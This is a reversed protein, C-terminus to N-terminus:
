GALTTMAQEARTLVADAVWLPVADTSARTVEHAGEHLQTVQWWGRLLHAASWYALRDRDLTQGREYGRRYARALSPAAARLVIREPRSDVAIWAVRFLALTRAVDFHRDGVVSDTWDIVVHHWGTDDRSSLVNLPHFDGHCVVPQEDRVVDAHQELTYLVAAAREDGVSRIEPGRRALWRDVLAGTRPLPCGGVPIAHLRVQLSALERLRRHAAWPARQIVTLLASGPVRPLVMWPLGVPNGLGSPVAVLPVPAPFGRAAVFALISHERELTADEEVTGFVRLALPQQYADPLEDGRLRGFWIFTTTGADAAELPAVWEAGAGGPVNEQVWGLTAAAIQEPRRPDCPVPAFPVPRAAPRQAPLGRLHDDSDEADGRCTDEGAQGPEVDVPREAAPGAPDHDDGGVVTPGRERRGLERGVDHREQERQAGDEEDAPDETPLRGPQEPHAARSETDRHQRTRDAVEPVHAEELTHPVRLKSAIVRAEVGWQAEGQADGGREDCHGASLTGAIGLM